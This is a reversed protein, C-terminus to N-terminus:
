PKGWIPELTKRLRALARILQTKINSESCQLEAAIDKIDLHQDYHLDFIIRQRPPLLGLAAQIKDAAQRRIAADEPSETRQPIASSAEDLAVHLREQRRERRRLHDIAANICISNLWASFDPGRLPDYSSIRRIVKIFTEQLVDEADQASRLYRFALRYIREGHDAYLRRFAERHGEKALSLTQAEQM